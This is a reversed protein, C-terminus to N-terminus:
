YLEFDYDDINDKEGKLLMRIVTKLDEGTPRGFVVNRFTILENGDWVNFAKWAHPSFQSDEPIDNLYSEIDTIVKVVHGDVYIIYSEGEDFMIGDEVWQEAEEMLGADKFDEKLIDLQIYEDVPDIEVIAPPHNEGKLASEVIEISDSFDAALGMEEIDEISNGYSINHNKEANEIIGYINNDSKKEIVGKKDANVMRDKIADELEPPISDLKKGVAENDAFDFQALPGIWQNFGQPHNPNTSMAYVDDGIVVTYRDVSQGGNDYVTVQEGSIKKNFKNYVKM